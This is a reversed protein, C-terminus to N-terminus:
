KKITKKYTGRPKGIRKNTNRKRYPSIPAGDNIAFMIRNRMRSFNTSGFSINNLTKIDRNVREMPGNTIKHGNITNFSNIIENFWSEMINIFPAYETIHANKFMDILEILRSEADDISATAIFERFEEKLTYALKLTPNLSLMCDIIKYKSMTMGSKTVKIYHQKIKSIDILLFKWFKKYLWYYNHGKDKLFEYSKMTEIRIRQFCNNLQKVVHFPDASIKANPFCKKIVNRYHEYLDMSVFKVNDKESLPIHAFYDILNLERRSDLIDIIKRWQPSYIVFCYSNKVLKKLYVEDICIVEPLKLRKLDVKTDFLNTVYSASVNFEKAVTSYTKTLSRLSNLIMIEKQLSVHHGDTRIPNPEKSLKGCCNCKYIRQHLHILVNKSDLTSTKISCKKSSRVVVNSSYCSECKFNDDKKLFLEIILNLTDFDFDSYSKDLDINSVEINLKKFLEISLM